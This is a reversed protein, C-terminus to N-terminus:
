LNAPRQALLPQLTAGVVLDAEVVGVVAVAAVLAAREGRVGEDGAHQPVGRGAVQVRHAVGPQVGAGRTLPAQLTAGCDFGGM